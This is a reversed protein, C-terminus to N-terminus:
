RAAEGGQLQDLPFGALEEPPVPDPVGDPYALTLYNELTPPIGRQKMKELLPDSGPPTQLAEWWIGSKSEQPDPM